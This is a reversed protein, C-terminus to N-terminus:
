TSAIIILTDMLNHLVFKLCFVTIVFVLGEWCNPAAGGLGQMQFRISPITVRLLNRGVGRSWVNTEHGFLRCLFLWVTFFPAAWAFIPLMFFTTLDFTVTWFHSHHDSLSLNKIAAIWAFLTNGIGVPFRCWFEGSNNSHMLIKAMMLGGCGSRLQWRQNWLKKWAAKKQM